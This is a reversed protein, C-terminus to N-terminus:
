PLGIHVFTTIKGASFEMRWDRRRNAGHWFYAVCSFEPTIDIPLPPPSLSARTSNSYHDHTSRSIYVATGFQIASSYHKTNYVFPSKKSPRPTPPATRLPRPASIKATTQLIFLWNMTHTNHSLPLISLKNIPM